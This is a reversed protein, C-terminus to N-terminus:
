DVISNALFHRLYQIANVLIAKAKATHKYSSLSRLIKVILLLNTRPLSM